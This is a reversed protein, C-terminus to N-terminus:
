KNKTFGFLTLMSEIVSFGAGIVALYAANFKLVAAIVLGVVLLAKSIIAITKGAKVATLARKAMKYALPVYSIQDNLVLADEIKLVGDKEEVYVQKEKKLEPLVFDIKKEAQPLFECDFDVEVKKVGLANLEYLAGLSDEKLLKGNSLAKASLKVSNAGGIKKVGSLTNYKVFCARADAYLNKYTLLTQGITDTIMTVALLAAGILATNKLGDIYVADFIPLIFTVALAIFIMCLDAYLGTKALKQVKKDSSRYDTAREFEKRNEDIFSEGYNKTSKYIFSDSLVVSGAPVDDGEKCDTELSYDVAYRSLEGDCLATGDTPLTDGKYLTVITGESIESRSVEEGNVEVPTSGTYFCNEVKIEGSKESFNRIFKNLAFLFILLTALNPQGLVVFAISAILAALNGGLPRKKIVDLGANFVVDYGSVSFSLILTIMKFSLLSDTSKLFLSVIYLVLAVSLEVIRLLTDKKLEKRKKALRDDYDLTIKEDYKVSKTAPTLDYYGNDDTFDEAILGNDATEDIEDGFVVEIDYEDSIAILTQLLDYEYAENKASIIVSEGDFVVGEVNEIKETKAKYKKLTKEDLNSLGVLKYRYEL